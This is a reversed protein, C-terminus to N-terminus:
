LNQGGMLTGAGTAAAAERVAPSASATVELGDATAAVGEPLAIDGMSFDASYAEAAQRAEAETMAAAPSAVARAPVMGAVLAAALIGGAVARRMSRASAPLHSTKHPPTTKM